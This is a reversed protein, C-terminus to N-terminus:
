FVQGLKISFASNAQTYEASKNAGTKEKSQNAFYFGLVLGDPPVWLVGMQNENALFDSSEVSYSKTINEYAFLLGSFMIELNTRIIAVEPHNNSLLEASAEKNSKASSTSSAEMRILVGGPSGFEASLGFTTDLWNNDVKHSSTEKIREVAGGVKFSEGIAVSISGIMGSRESKLHDAITPIFDETTRSHSGMGILFFDNGFLVLSVLNETTELNISDDSPDPTTNTTTSNYSGEFYFKSLNFAINGALGSSHLDYITSFDNKRTGDGELYEIGVSASRRWGSAAPIIVNETPDLSPSVVQAHLDGSSLM